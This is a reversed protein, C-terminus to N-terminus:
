DTMWRADVAAGLGAFRREDEVMWVVKPGLTRFVPEDFWHGRLGVDNTQTPLGRRRAASTFAQAFSRCKSSSCSVVARRVGAGAFSAAVASADLPTHGVEVLAVRDYVGPRAAVVQSALTAGQSWGGYILPGDAIWDAYRARVTAVAREAQSAIAESSGWVFSRNTATSDPHVRTAQPCVVLAWGATVEKWEACSWDPRDGAGHVGVVIARKDRAGVPLALWAIEGGGLEIRELPAGELAPPDPAPTSPAASRAATAPGLAAGRAPRPADARACATTLALFAGFSLATFRLHALRVIGEDRRPEM